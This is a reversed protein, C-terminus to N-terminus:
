KAGLGEPVRGPCGGRQYGAPAYRKMVCPVQAKSDSYTESASQKALEYAQKHDEEDRYRIIDSRWEETNEKMKVRDDAM